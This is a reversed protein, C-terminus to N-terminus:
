QTEIGGLIFLIELGLSGMHTKKQNDNEEM